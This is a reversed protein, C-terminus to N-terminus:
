RTDADLYGLFGRISNAIFAREREQVPPAMRHWGAMLPDEAFLRAMCRDIIGPGPDTKKEEEITEAWLWLQNRNYHLMKTPNESAGFHGYCLLGHADAMLADISRISTELFFRPPTAPRLYFTGDDLRHFVGGAEGAFLYGAVQYSVPHVAHGPTEIAMTGAKGWDAANVLLSPDVPRIPGYARATDGLTAVSGQWLRTPDALHVAAKRHCIVPAASFHDFLDGIGGAHDIHIHTLLVADLRTVNLARLVRALRPITSAPGPDVLFVKEAKYLWAGIFATFGPLAQDLPIL